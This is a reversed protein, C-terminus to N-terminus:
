GLTPGLMLFRTLPGHKEAQPHPILPRTGPHKEHVKRKGSTTKSSKSTITRLIENAPVTHVFHQQNIGRQGGDTARFVPQTWGVSLAVPIHQHLSTCWSVLGNSSSHLPSHLKWCKYSSFVSLLCFLNLKGKLSSLLFCKFQGHLPQRSILHM